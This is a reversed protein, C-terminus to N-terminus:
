KAYNNKLKEYRADSPENPLWRTRYANLTISAWDPDVFSEATVAFEAEDFWGPPSWTDWQIRAFGVPDRRVAEAGRDLCMFWQYWFSRSQAFGPLDFVGRPQYALALAAISTIREPFLPLWHTHLAREGTM